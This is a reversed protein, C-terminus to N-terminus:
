DFFQVIEGGSRTGLAWWVTPNIRNSINHVSGDALRVNVTKGAGEVVHGATLIHGDADYVFGSGLGSRTEIQVVRGQERTKHVTAYVLEAPLRQTAPQGTPTLEPGAYVEAINLASTAMTHGLQLLEALLERRGHRLRLVDILVSTDLLLRM